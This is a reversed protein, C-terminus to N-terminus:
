VTGHLEHHSALRNKVVSRLRRPPSLPMVEPPTHLHLHWAVSSITARQLSRGDLRSRQEPKGGDLPCTDSLQDPVRQRMDLALEDQLRQTEMAPVSGARSARCRSEITACCSGRSDCDPRLRAAARPSRTVLARHASTKFGVATLSTILDALPALVALPDVGNRSTEYASTDTGQALDEPRALLRRITRIMM